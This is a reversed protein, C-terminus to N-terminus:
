GVTALVVSAAGLTLSGPGRAVGLDQWPPMRGAADPVLPVGNCLLPAGRVGAQGTLHYETRGGGLGAGALVVDIAAGVNNLSLALVAFAAGTAPAASFAFVRVGTDLVSANLAVPFAAADGGVLAKFLWLLAYDPNPGYTTRNLLEYDGGVLAQRASLSM